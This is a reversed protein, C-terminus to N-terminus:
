RSRAKMGGGERGGKGERGVVKSSLRGTEYPSLDRPKNKYFVIGRQGYKEEGESEEEGERVCVGSGKGM